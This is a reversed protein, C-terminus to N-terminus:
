SSHAFHCVAEHGDGIRLAPPVHEACVPQALPCRTRFVCGGPPDLPSPLEGSLLMRERGREVEPDPVPVASLLARTYPHAPAAFLRESPAQEMKRGLYMVMVRHSIRRVAALDHAIFLIALRHESQLSRLLEIIQARVSVDLASVPEDCILVRPATVVARAIAVRQCQGGSLEHPYRGLHHPALGVREVMEVVRRQRQTRTPAPDLYRLPEAVLEAVSMRPDLSEAPDQFVMQISRRTRRWDGADAGFRRGDLLVAGGAIPDLGVLARALSSKGCGSEGVVGLTEGAALDLHLGDVAVLSRARQWPWRPALAHTVRLGRASLLAASM